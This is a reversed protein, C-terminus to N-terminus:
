SAQNLFTNKFIRQLVLVYGLLLYEPGSKAIVQAETIHLANHQSWVKERDACTTNKGRTWFKERHTSIGNSMSNITVSPVSDDAYSRLAPHWPAIWPAEDQLICLAGSVQCLTPHHHPHIKFRRKGLVKPDVPHPAAPFVKEKRQSQCCPAMRWWEQSQSESCCVQAPHVSFSLLVQTTGAWTQTCM